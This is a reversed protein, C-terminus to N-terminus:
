TLTVLRPKRSARAIMQDLLERTERMRDEPSMGAERDSIRAAATAAEGIATIAQENEALLQAVEETVSNYEALRRKYADLLTQESRSRDDGKKELSTVKEVVENRNLSRISTLLNVIRGLNQIGTKFVEEATGMFRSYTLESTSMVRGLIERLTEIKKDFQDVQESGQPCDLGCLDSILTKTQRAKLAEFREHLDDYYVQMNADKKGFFNFAWSAAGMSVGTITVLAATPLTFFMFAGIGGVIGIATPWVTLPHQISNALAAKQAAAESYELASPGAKAQKISM